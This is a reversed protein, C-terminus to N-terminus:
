KQWHQEYQIVTYGETNLFPDENSIGPHIKVQTTQSVGPVNSREFLCQWLYPVTGDDPDYDAFDGNPPLRKCRDSGFDNAQQQYHAVVSEVDTTEIKYFAEQYARDAYNEIAWEEAGEPIPIHLPSRASETEIAVFVASGLVFLLGLGMFFLGTKVVSLKGRKDFFYNTV